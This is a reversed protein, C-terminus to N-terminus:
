RRPFLFANQLAHMRRGELAPFAADLRADLDAPGTAAALEVRARELYGATEDIAAAGADQPEGHGPLIRAVPARLPGLASLWTDFARGALFPHVGASVLDGTLLIGDAPLRIVLQVSAEADAVAAFEFLTGDIVEPGPEITGEVVPAPPPPADIGTAAYSAAIQRAGAATIAAAVEPLARVPAGFRAATAFHDPHPHTVIVAALPKGGAALEALEAAVADADADLLPADVLVVSSPLVLLHSNARWGAESATVTVVGVRGDGTWRTVTM